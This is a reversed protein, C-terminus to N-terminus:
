LDVIHYSSQCSIIHTKLMIAEWQRWWRYRLVLQKTYKLRIYEYTTPRNTENLQLLLLLLSLSACLVRRTWSTVASLSSGTWVFLTGFICTETVDFHREFCVLGELWYLMKYYYQVQKSQRKWELLISNTNYGNNNIFWGLASQGRVPQLVL